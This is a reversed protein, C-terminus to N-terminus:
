YQVGGPQVAQGGARRPLQVALPPYPRVPPQSLSWMFNGVNGWGILFCAALCLPPPASQSSNKPQVTIRMPKWWNNLPTPTLGVSTQHVKSLLKSISSCVPGWLIDHKCKDQSWSSHNWSNQLWYKKPEVKLIDESKISLHGRVPNETAYKCICKTSSVAVFCVQM